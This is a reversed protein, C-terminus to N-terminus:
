AKRLPEGTADTTLRGGLYDLCLALAVEPDRVNAVLQGQRRLRAQHLRQEPSIQGKAAKFEIWFAGWVQGDAGRGLAPLVLDPVGSLAGEAKLLAGTIADRNGGNPTSHLSELEPHRKALIRVLTIFQRQLVHERPPPLVPETRKRRKPHGTPRDPM